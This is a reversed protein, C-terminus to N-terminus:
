RQHEQYAQCGPCLKSPPDARNCGCGECLLPFLKSVEFDWQRGFMVEIQHVNLRDTAILRVVKLALEKASVVTMLNGVLFELQERRTNM